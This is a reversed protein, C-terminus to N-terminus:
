PRRADLRTERFTFRWAGDTCRVLRSHYRGFNAAAPGDPLEVMTVLYSDAEAQDGHVMIRHGGTVHHLRQGREMAPAFTGQIFERIAARGGIAGASDTHWVGDETFCELLADYDRDDLAYVYAMLRREIAREDEIARLRSEIDAM